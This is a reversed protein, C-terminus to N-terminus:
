DIKFSDTRSTKSCELNNNMNSYLGMVKVGLHIYEGSGIQLLVEYEYMEWVYSPKIM